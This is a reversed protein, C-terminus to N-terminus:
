DFCDKYISLKHAEKQSGFITDPNLGVVAYRNRSLINHIKLWISIDQESMSSLQQETEESPIYGHFRSLIHNRQKELKKVQTELHFVKSQLETELHFEKSQLETELHFVKSQLETIVSVLQVIVYEKASVNNNEYLIKSSM